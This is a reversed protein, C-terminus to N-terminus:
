YGGCHWGDYCCDGYYTCWEDCWCYGANGGCGGYCSGEYRCQGSDSCYTTQAGASAETAQQYHECCQDDSGCGGGANVCSPEAFDTGQCSTGCAGWAFSAFSACLACNWPKYWKCNRCTKDHSKCGDYCCCDGCIWSWCSSGPGCMGLSNDGYPDSRLDLCYARETSSTLDSDLPPLEISLENAAQVAIMHVGLTAPHSSGTLGHAGLERSLWPLVAYEPRLELDTFAREDGETTFAGELSFEPRQDEPIEAMDASLQIISLDTITRARGDFVSNILLDGVQEIRILEEGDASRVILRNVTDTRVADVVVTVGDHVYSATVREPASSVLVLEAEALEGEGPEDEGACAALALGGTLCV